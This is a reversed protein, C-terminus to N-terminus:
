TAAAYWRGDVAFARVRRGFCASLAEADHLLDAPGTAVFRGERLLAVHPHQALFDHIATTGAKQVGAVIFNVQEVKRRRFSLSEM